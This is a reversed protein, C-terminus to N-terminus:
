GANRVPIASCPRCLLDSKMHIVTHIVGALDRANIAPFVIAIVVSKNFLFLLIRLIMYKSTFIQTRAVVDPRHESYRTRFLFIHM